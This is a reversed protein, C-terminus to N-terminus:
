IALAPFIIGAIAVVFAIIAPNITESAQLIKVPLNLSHEVTNIKELVEIIIGDCSIPKQWFIGQM